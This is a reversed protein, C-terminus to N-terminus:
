GLVSRDPDYMPKELLKIRYGVRTQVAEEACRMAEDLGPAHKVMVGDHIIAGIQFGAKTLVDVVVDIIRREEGQLVLSFLAARSTKKGQARREERLLTPDHRAFYEDLFSAYFHELAVIEPPTPVAEKTFERWHYVAGGGNLVALVVLKTSAPNGGLRKIVTSRDTVYEALLPSPAYGERAIMQALITPHCNEIDIDHYIKRALLRRLVGPCSQYAHYPSAYLRGPLVKSPDEYAVRQSYTSPLPPAHKDEQKWTQRAHLRVAELWELRTRESETCVVNQSLRWHELEIAHGDYEELIADGTADAGRSPEEPFHRAYTLLLQEEEQGKHLRQWERVPILRGLTPSWLHVDACVPLLPEYSIEVYYSDRGGDRARKGRRSEVHYGFSKLLGKVLNVGCGGRTKVNQLKALTELRLHLAAHATPVTGSLCANIYALGKSPLRAPTLGLRLHLAEEFSEMAFLRPLIPLRLTYGDSQYGQSAVQLGTMCQHTALARLTVHEDAKYNDLVRVMLAPDYFRQFPRLAYFAGVIFKDRADMDGKREALGFGETEFFLDGDGNELLWEMRQLKTFQTAFTLDPSLTSPTTPLAVEADCPEMRSVPMHHHAAVRQLTHWMSRQQHLRHLTRQALLQLLADEYAPPTPGHECKLQLQLARTHKHKVKRLEAAFTPLTTPERM